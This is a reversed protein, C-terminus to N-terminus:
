LNIYNRCNRSTNGFFKHNGYQMKSPTFEVNMSNHYWKGQLNVEDNKVNVKFAIEGQSLRITSQLPYSEFDWVLGPVLSWENDNLEAITTGDNNQIIASILVRGNEGDRRASLVVQSSLTLLNPTDIAKGGALNVSLENTNVYLHGRVLNDVINKPRDKMKRQDNVPIAGVTFLQHCSACVVMMDAARFHQEEAWPIIHHYEIFPHGCKCCGFGSEQRLQRKVEAPVNPRNNNM